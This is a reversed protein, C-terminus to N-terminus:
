QRLASGLAAQAETDYRAGAKGLRATGEHVARPGSGRAPFSKGSARNTRRALQRRERLQSLAIRGKVSPLDLAEQEARRRATQRCRFGACNRPDAGRTSVNLEADIQNNNPGDTRCSLALPRRRSSGMGEGTQFNMAVVVM